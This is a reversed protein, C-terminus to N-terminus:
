VGDSSRMEVGATEEQLLVAVTRDREGWGRNMAQMLLQEVLSGVPLPVDNRRGLETALGLDKRGLDLTFDPPDFRGQFVTRSLRPILPGVASKSGSELLIPLEVGAKLGLTLGEAVAQLVTATTMNHVVKCICATGLGGTYIVNDAFVDFMPHLRDFIGREGGVMLIVGRDIADLPSSLVPTDMVHAGKEQFLPELGRITDPGCTSMDLYIAGPQIGELIGEPGKVVREVVQPRPLSTFLVESLSAAEAPSGALRAGGELLPRTAGESIDYVVMPYGAKQINVAMPTGMKGLGVFGVTEM